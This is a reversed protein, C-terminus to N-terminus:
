TGNRELVKETIASAHNATRIEGYKRRRQTHSLANLQVTSFPTTTRLLQSQDKMFAKKGGLRVLLPYSVMSAVAKREDSMVAKQFAEFVAVAQRCDPRSPISCIEDPSEGFVPAQGAAACLFVVMLLRSFVSKM